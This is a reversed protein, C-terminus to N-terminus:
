WCRGLLLQGTQVASSTVLGSLDGDTVSRFRTVSVSSEPLKQTGLLGDRVAQGVSTGHPISRKPWSRNVAKM